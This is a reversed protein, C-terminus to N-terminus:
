KTTKLKYFQINDPLILIQSASLFMCVIYLIVASEIPFGLSM